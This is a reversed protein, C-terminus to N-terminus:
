VLARLGIVLPTIRYRLRDVSAASDLPWDCTLIKVVGRTLLPPVGTLAARAEHILAGTTAVLHPIRRPLSQGTLERVIEFIRMQPANEGGLAYEGALDQELAQVHADAVDEVHSYSWIRESGIVGPLRRNVHDRILGGVLNGETSAGPGYIVGPCLITIPFGSAAAARAVAHARVKTRQYDNAELPTTHRAPPLALFSSTYVVRRIQHRACAEIISELGGVNIEDFDASRRRWISVLAAAHCVADVGSVARDVARRDRIDGNITGCPLGAASAHRAFAIPRHGSRTLSHVIARGLYGSGGTVLVKM